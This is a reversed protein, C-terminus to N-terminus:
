RRRPTRAREPLLVRSARRRPHMRALARGLARGLREAARDIAVFLDADTDTVVLTKLRRGLVRLTVFKDIGGKPGNLDALRVVIRGVEHDFRGLAFVLRRELHRRLETTAILGNCHVHLNM